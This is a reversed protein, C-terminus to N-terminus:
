GHSSARLATSTKPQFAAGPLSFPKVHPARHASGAAAQAGAFVLLELSGPSQSKASMIKRENQNKDGCVSGASNGRGRPVGYFILDAAFTNIRTEPSTRRNEPSRGPSAAVRNYTKDLYAEGPGPSGIRIAVASSLM